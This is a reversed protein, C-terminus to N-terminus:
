YFPGFGMRLVSSRDFFEPFGYASFKPYLRLFVLHLSDALYLRLSSCILLMESLHFHKRDLSIIDTSFAKMIIVEFHLIMERMRQIKYKYINLQLLKFRSNLNVMVM